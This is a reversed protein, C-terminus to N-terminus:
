QPDTAPRTSLRPTRPGGSRPRGTRARQWPLSAATLLIRLAFLLAASAFASGGKSRAGSRALAATRHGHKCSLGGHGKVWHVELQGVFMVLRSADMHAM